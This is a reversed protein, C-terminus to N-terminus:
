ELYWDKVLVGAFFGLRDDAGRQFAGVIARFPVQDVPGLRQLVEVEVLGGTAFFGM